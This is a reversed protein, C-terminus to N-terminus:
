MGSLFYGPEAAAIANPSQEEETGVDFPITELVEFPKKVQLCLTLHGKHRPFWRAANPVM